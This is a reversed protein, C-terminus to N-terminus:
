KIKTTGPVSGLAEYTTSMCEAIGRAKSFTRLIYLKKAPAIVWHYLMQMTHGLGQTWSRPILFFLITYYNKLDWIRTRWMMIVNKM